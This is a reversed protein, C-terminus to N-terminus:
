PQGTRGGLSARSGALSPPPGLAQTPVLWYVNGSTDIGIPEDGGSYIYTISPGMLNFPKWENTSSFYYLDNASVAVLWTAYAYSAPPSGPYAPITAILEGGQSSDYAYFNGDSGPILIQNGATLILSTFFIVGSPPSITPLDINGLNMIVVGLCAYAASNNAALIWGQYNGAWQSITTGNVEWIAGTNDLIWVVNKSAVMQAIGNPSSFVPSWQDSGELLSVDNQQAGWISVGDSCLLTLQSGIPNWGQTYNYRYIVTDSGVACVIGDRAMVSTVNSLGMPTADAM